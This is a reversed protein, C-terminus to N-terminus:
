LKDLPSKVNKIMEESIKMHRMKTADYNGLLTQIIGIRVGYELLHSAFSHRLAHPSVPRLGAAAFAYKVIQEADEPTVHGGNWNPFLHNNDPKQTYRFLFELQPVMKTSLPVTRTGVNVRCEKLNIDDIKLEIAEFIQLGCGYLLQLLIKHKLNKTSGILIRIEQKSLLNTKRKLTADLLETDVVHSSSIFSNEYNKEIVFPPTFQSMQVQLWKGEKSSPIDGKPWQRFEDVFPEIKDLLQPVLRM